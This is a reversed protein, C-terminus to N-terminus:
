YLTDKKKKKLNHTKWIGYLTWAGAAGTVAWEVVQGEVGDPFEIGFTAKLFLFILSVIPGIFTRM